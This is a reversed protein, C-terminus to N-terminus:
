RVLSFAVCRRRSSRVARCFFRREVTGDATRVNVFDWNRCPLRYTGLSELLLVDRHERIFKCTALEFIPKKSIAPNFSWDFQDLAKVERFQAAAVRRHLLRSSRVALEDQLILELFERHDLHNAAAEHLRVELTSLLGSLRLQRLLNRLADNM